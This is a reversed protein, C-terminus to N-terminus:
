EVGTGPLAGYAHCLVRSYRGGGSLMWGGGVSEARAVGPNLASCSLRDPKAYFDSEAQHPAFSLEWNQVASQSYVWGTSGCASSTRWCIEFFADFDLGYGGWRVPQM